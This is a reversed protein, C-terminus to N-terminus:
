LKGPRHPLKRCRQSSSIGLGDGHLSSDAKGPSARNSSSPEADKGQFVRRPSAGARAWPGLVRAPHLLGWNTCPVSGSQAPSPVHGRDRSVAWCVEQETLPVQAHRLGWPRVWWGLEAVPVALM